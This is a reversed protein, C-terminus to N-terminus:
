GEFWSNGREIRFTLTEEGALTSADWLTEKDSFPGHEIFRGKIKWELPSEDFPYPKIALTLEDRPQLSLDIRHEVSGGPAAGIVQAEPEGCCLLLSIWDWVHLLRSNHMLNTEQVAPGYVGHTWLDKRIRNQMNRQEILFAEVLHRDKSTNEERGGRYLGTAYLSILLAAYPDKETMGAVSRRWIGLHQAVEVESFNLPEGDQNLGPHHEWEEWGTDHEAAATMLSSRPEPSAFEENGWHGALAGSFVAHEPQRILLWGHKFPRRIM